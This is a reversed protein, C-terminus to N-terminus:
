MVYARVVLVAPMVLAFVCLRELWRAGGRSSHLRAFVFDGEDFVGRWIKACAGAGARAAVVFVGGGYGPSVHVRMGRIEVAEGDGDDRCESSNVRCRFTNTRDSLSRVTVVPGNGDGDAELVALLYM